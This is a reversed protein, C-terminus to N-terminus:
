AIAAEDAISTVDNAATAASICTFAGGLAGMGGDAAALDPEVVLDVGEDEPDLSVEVPRRVGVIRAVSNDNRADAKPV